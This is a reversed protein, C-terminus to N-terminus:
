FTGTSLMSELIDSKTNVLGSICTYVHITCKLICTIRGWLGKFFSVKTHWGHWHAIAIWQLTRLGHLLASFSFKWTLKPRIAEPWWGSTHMCLHVFYSLSMGKLKSIDEQYDYGLSTTLWEALRESSMGTSFKQTCTTSWNFLNTWFHYSPCHCAPYSNSNNGM